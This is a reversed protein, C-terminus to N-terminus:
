RAAETVNKSGRPFFLMVAEDEDGEGMLAFTTPPPPLLLFLLWRVGDVAVSPVEPHERRDRTESAVESMLSGRTDADLFVFVLKFLPSPVVRFDDLCSTLQIDTSSAISVMWSPVSLSNPLPVVSSALVVADEAPGKGRVRGADQLSSSPKSNPPILPAVSSAGM